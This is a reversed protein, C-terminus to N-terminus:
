LEGALIIKLNNWKWANKQTGYAAREVGIWVGCWM